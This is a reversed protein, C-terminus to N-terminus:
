HPICSASDAENSSRVNNSKNSEILANSSNVTARLYQNAAKAVAVTVVVTGGAKPVAPTDIEVTSLVAYACQVREVKTKSAQADAFDSLNKVAVQALTQGNQVVWGVTAVTLDPNAFFYAECAGAATAGNTVGETEANAALPLALTMAGVPSGTSSFKLVTGQPITKGTINKIRYVHNVDSAGMQCSLNVRTAMPLSTKSKQVQAAADTQLIAVSCISALLMWWRSNM